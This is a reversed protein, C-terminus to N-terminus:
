ILFVNAEPSRVSQSEPVDITRNLNSTGERNKLQYTVWLFICNTVITWVLIVTAALSQVGLLYWDGTWILGGHNYSLEPVAKAFIGTAIM